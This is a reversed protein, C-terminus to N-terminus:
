SGRLRLKVFELEPGLGVEAELGAEVVGVVLPPGLLGFWGVVWELFWCFWPRVTLTLRDEEDDVVGVVDVADVV